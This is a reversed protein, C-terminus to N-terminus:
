DSPPLCEMTFCICASIHLLLHIFMHETKGHAQQRLQIIYTRCSPMRTSARKKNPQTPVAYALINEALACLLLLINVYRIPRAFSRIGSFPVSSYGQRLAPM